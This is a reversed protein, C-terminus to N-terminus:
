YRWGQDVGAGGERDQLSEQLLGLKETLVRIGKLVVEEPRLAGSTEVDMYFRNPVAAHDFAEGEKPPEEEEANRGVPWEREESEEVWYKTHRLKNYPDYEFGVATVPSWKAHEKAVGKRAICKLKIEQGKRLKVILVGPSDPSDSGVPQVTRDSSMLDRSTVARTRDENCMVHLTLEVSCNQCYQSCMCERTYVFRDATTSILPIMGLRHALFEDTLVTSNIDIEVMDIAMTAVEAIMVRRLSNAVSLDTNSLVFDVHEANLERIHVEPGGGSDVGDAYGNSLDM